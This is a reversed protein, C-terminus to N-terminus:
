RVSLSIPRFLGPENKGVTARAKEWSEEKEGDIQDCIKMEGCNRGPDPASEPALYEPRM